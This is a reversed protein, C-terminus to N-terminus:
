KLNSIIQGATESLKKLINSLIQDAKTMRNMYRQVLFQQEEGTENLSDLKEKLGKLQIKYSELERRPCNTSECDKIKKQMERMAERQEKKKQNVEQMENMLNRMDDSSDKAVEMLVLQILADIDMNQIGSVSQILNKALEVNFNEGHVKMDNILIHAQKMNLPSLIPTELDAKVIQVFKFQGNNLRGAAVFRLHRFEPKLVIPTPRTLVPIPQIPGVPQAHAIFSSLLIVLPLSIWFM